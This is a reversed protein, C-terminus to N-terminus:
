IIRAMGFGSWYPLGDELRAVSGNPLCGYPLNGFVGNRLLSIPNKIELYVVIM